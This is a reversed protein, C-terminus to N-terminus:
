LNKCGIFNRCWGSIRKRNNFGRGNGSLLRIPTNELMKRWELAFMSRDSSCSPEVYGAKLDTSCKLNYLLITLFLEAIDGLADIERM